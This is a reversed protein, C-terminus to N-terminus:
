SLHNKDFYRISRLMEVAKTSSFHKSIEDIDTYMYGDPECYGGDDLLDYYTYPTEDGTNLTVKDIKEKMVEFGYKEVLVATVTEVTVALRTMLIYGVLLLMEQGNIKNSKILAGICSDDTIFYRYEKVQFEGKIISRM